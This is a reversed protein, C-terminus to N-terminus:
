RPGINDLRYSLQEMCLEVQHNDMSESYQCMNNIHTEKVLMGLIFGFIIEIM